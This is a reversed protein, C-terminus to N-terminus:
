LVVFFIFSVTVLSLLIGYGVIASTLRPSLGALSALAAASIMPGMGSEIISIESALNDWDFIYCVWIAILPSILLKMLLAVGLPTVEHSPLHFQLQIGVALLAAPMILNSLLTLIDTVVSYYEIDTMSIVISIILTIFPPFTIIKLLSKLISVRQDSYISLVITGYTALAIFSGLQDYVVAYPLAYGGYLADIIPIGLFSSNPLVAVLLLAGTTSKDFEMYRCVSWVVLALSIMVMWSVAVPIVMDMDLTLKPIQILIMAPLAIYIVFKNLLQPAEKPLISIKGVGYGLFLMVVIIFLNIM